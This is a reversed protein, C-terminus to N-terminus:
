PAVVCVNTAGALPDTGCVLGLVSCDAQTSCPVSCFSLSPIVADPPGACIMPIGTDTQVPCDADERCGIACTGEAYGPYCICQSTPKCAKAPDSEGEKPLCFGDPNCHSFGAENASCDQTDLCTTKCYGVDQNFRLECEAGEPCRGSEGAADCFRLCYGAPGPGDKRDLCIGRSGPGCLSGVDDCLSVCLPQPMYRTLLSGAVTTSCVLGEACALEATCPAGFEPLGGSTTTDGHTAPPTACGLGMCLWAIAVGEWAHRLHGGRREFGM